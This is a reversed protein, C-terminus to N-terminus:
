TATQGTESTAPGPEGATQGAAGTTAGTAGSAPGTAGTTPGTTTTAPGAAQAALLLKTAEAPLYTLALSDSGVNRLALHLQMRAGNLFESRGIGALGHLVNATNKIKGALVEARIKDVRKISDAEATALYEIEWRDWDAQWSEIWQQTIEDEVKILGLEVKLIKVGLGATAQRLGRELERRIAQRPHEQGAKEPSMLLDLPYRALIGKLTGGAESLFTLAKWDLTQESEPRDAECMWKSTIATLIADPDMPFPINETPAQGGDQIQFHIDAECAVPIGELSMGEVAQAWRRPRLDVSDYIREFRKLEQLGPGVAQTLRGGQELIVATDKRIVLAGPGGVKAVFSDPNSIATDIKGGELRLMPKNSSRGFLCHVLHWFAERKGQLGYLEQMFRIALAFGAL